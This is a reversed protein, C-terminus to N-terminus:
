SRDADRARRRKLAEYKSVAAATYRRCPRCRRFGPSAQRRRCRTCIGQDRCAAMSLEFRPPQEEEDVAAAAARPSRASPAALLVWSPPWECHDGVPVLPDGAGYGIPRRTTRREPVRRRM